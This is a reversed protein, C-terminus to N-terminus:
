SLYLYADSKFFFYFQLKRALKKEDLLNTIWPTNKTHHRYLSFRFHQCCIKKVLMQNNQNTTIKINHCKMEALVRPILYTLLSPAFIMFDALIISFDWFWCSKEQLGGADWRQTKAIGPIVAHLVYLRRHTAGKLITFSYTKIPFSYQFTDRLSILFSWKWGKKIINMSQYHFYIILGLYKRAISIRLIM